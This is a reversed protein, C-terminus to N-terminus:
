VAVESQKYAEHAGDRLAQELEAIKEAQKEIQQQHVLYGSKLAWFLQHREMACDHSYQTAGIMDSLEVQEGREIKWLLIKFEEADFQKAKM